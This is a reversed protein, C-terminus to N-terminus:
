RAAAIRKFVQDAGEAWVTWRHGGEQVIYRDGPLVAAVMGAAPYFRDERGCILWVSRARDRNDLWSKVLRWEERPV